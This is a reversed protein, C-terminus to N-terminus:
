FERLRDVEPTDNHCTLDLLSSKEFATWFSFWFDFDFLGLHKM